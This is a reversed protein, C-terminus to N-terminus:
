CIYYAPHRPVYGWRPPMYRWQFATGDFWQWVIQPNHWKTTRKKQWPTTRQPTQPPRPPTAASRRGAQKAGEAFSQKAGRKTHKAYKAQSQEGSPPECREAKPADRAANRRQVVALATASSGSVPAERRPRRRGQRPGLTRAAQGCRSNPPSSFWKAGRM